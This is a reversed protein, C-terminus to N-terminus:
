REPLPVPPWRTRKQAIDDGGGRRRDVLLLAAGRATQWGGRRTRTERGRKWTTLTLTSLWGPRAIGEREDQRGEGGQRPAEAYQRVGGSLPRAAPHWRLAASTM